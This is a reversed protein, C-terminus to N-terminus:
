TEGTLKVWSSREPQRFEVLFSAKVLLFDTKRHHSNKYPPDELLMASVPQELTYKLLFFAYYPTSLSHNYGTTTVKIKKIKSVMLPM